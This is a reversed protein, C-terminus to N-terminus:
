FKNLSLSAFADINLSGNISTLQTKIEHLDNQLQKIRSERMKTDEETSNELIKSEHFKIKVQIFQTIIGLADKANFNGKILQINM